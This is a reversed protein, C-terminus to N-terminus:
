KFTAIAAIAPGSPTGAYTATWAASYAGTASVLRESAVGPSVLNTGGEQALISFGSADAFSVDGPYGSCITGVAALLETPATTTATTGTDFTMPSPASVTEHSAQRDLAGMPLGAYEVAMATIEITSGTETPALTITRAGAHATIASAFYIAVAAVGTSQGCASTTTVEAALHYADGVNDSISPIDWSISGDSWGAAYVVIFDGAAQPAPLVLPETSSLDAMIATAQVHEIARAADIAADRAGGGQEGFGFRGCASSALALALPLALVAM